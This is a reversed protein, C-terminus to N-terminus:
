EDVEANVIPALRVRNKLIVSHLLSPSIKFLLWEAYLGMKATNWAFIPKYKRLNEYYVDIDKPYQAEKKEIVLKMYSSMSVSVIYHELLRLSEPFKEQILDYQETYMMVQEVSDKTYGSHTISGRRVRYHYLFENFYALKTCRAMLRLFGSTDSYNRGDTQRFGKLTEAKYMKCTMSEFVFAHDSLLDKVGETPTYIRDQKRDNKKETGDEFHDTGTTAVFDFDSDKIKNYMFSVYNPEVWDDNDVFCVYSGKMVELGYNEASATGQNVQHYAHIRPDAEAMADIMAPSNDKSGDDVLILEFNTYDQALISDVCGKIYKEANYVPIIISVLDENM